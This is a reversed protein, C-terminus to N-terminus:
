LCTVAIDTKLAFSGGYNSLVGGVNGNSFKQASFGTVPLGRLTLTGCAVGNRTAGPVSSLTHGPNSTFDFRIWGSTGTPPTINRSQTSGLVNTNNITVVQAEYPLTPVGPSTTPSFDLQTVSTREERDYASIAVSEPAGGPAPRCFNTTFPRLGAPSTSSTAGSCAAGSPVYLSKTPFNFVIDTGGGLAPDIFWEASANSRMMVASMADGPNVPFNGCFVDGQNSIICAGPGIDGINPSPSAPAQHQATPFTQNYANADYSIDTGKGVNLIAAGGFLGGTPALMHIPALGSVVTPSSYLASLSGCDRPVGAVHTAANAANVSGSANTRPLNAAAASDLTAMEIVEMYGEATRGISDDIINGNWDVENLLANRFPQGSAPIGPVTCSTDSTKVSAGGDATRLIAATWVDFPSLFLNFDLVERTNKADFFRVKVVKASATSNVVSMLTDNGDKVTYYPYNLYSGLGGNGQIVAQAVGSLSALVGGVAVYLAKQKNLM